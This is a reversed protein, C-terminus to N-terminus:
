NSPQIDDTRLKPCDEDIGPLVKLGRSEFPKRFIAQTVDVSHQKGVTM